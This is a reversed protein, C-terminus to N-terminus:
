SPDLGNESLIAAISMESKVLRNNQKQLDAYQTELDNRKVLLQQHRQQWLKQEEETASARAKSSELTENLYAIKESYSSILAENSAKKELIEERLKKADRLDRSNLEEAAELTAIESEISILQQDAEQLAKQRSDIARQSAAIESELFEHEAAYQLRRQAAIEGIKKGIQDGAAAGIAAGAVGAAIAQETSAGQEKAILIGGAAGWIGGITRGLGRSKKVDQEALDDLPSRIYSEDATQQDQKNKGQGFPLFAHASSGVCLAIALLTLKIKMM